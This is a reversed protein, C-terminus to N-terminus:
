CYVTVHYQMLGCKLEFVVIVFIDCKHSLYAIGM